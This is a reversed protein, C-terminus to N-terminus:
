RPQQHIQLLDPYFMFLVPCLSMSHGTMKIFEFRSVTNRPMFMGNGVGNVIGRKALSIIAKEAWPYPSIDSFEIPKESSVDNFHNVVDDKTMNAYSVYSSFCFIIASILCLAKKM